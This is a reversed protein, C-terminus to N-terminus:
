LIEWKEKNNSFHTDLIKLDFDYKGSNAWEQLTSKASDLDSFGLKNIREIDKDSSLDSNAPVLFYRSEDLLENGKLDLESELQSKKNYFEEALTNLVDVVRAKAEESNDLGIPLVSSYPIDNYIYNQVSNNYVDLANSPYEGNFVVEPDPLSDIAPVNLTLKDDIYFPVIINSLPSISYSPSLYLLIVEGGDDECGEESDCIPFVPNDDMIIAVSKGLAEKFRSLAVDKLVPSNLLEIRSDEPDKDSDDDFSVNPIGETDIDTNESDDIVETDSVVEDPSVEMDLVDIQDDGEFQLRSETKRRSFVTKISAILNDLSLNNKDKVPYNTPPVNDSTDFDLVLMYGQLHLSGKKGKYTFVLEKDTTANKDVVVGEIAKEIEKHVSSDKWSSIPSSKAENRLSFNRKYMPIRKTHTDLSEFKRKLRVM